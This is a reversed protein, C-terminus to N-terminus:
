RCISLSAAPLEEDHDLGNVCPRSVASLPMLVTIALSGIMRRGDIAHHGIHGALNGVFRRLHRVLDLTTPRRILVGAAHGRLDFVGVHRRLWLRPPVVDENSRTRHSAFL